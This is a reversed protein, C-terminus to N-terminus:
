MITPRGGTWYPWDANGPTGSVRHTLLIGVNLQMVSAGYNARMVM